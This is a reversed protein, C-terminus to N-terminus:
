RKALANSETPFARCETDACSHRMDKSQVVKGPCELVDRGVM